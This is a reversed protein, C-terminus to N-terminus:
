EEKRSVPRSQPRSQPRSIAPSALSRPTSSHRIENELRTCQSSVGELVEEFSKEDDNDNDVEVPEEAEQDEAEREVEEEEEDSNYTSTGTIIRYAGNLM